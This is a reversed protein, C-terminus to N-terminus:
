APVVARPQGTPRLEVALLSMRESRILSVVEKHGSKKEGDVVLDDIGGGFRDVDLVFAGSVDGGVCSCIGSWIKSNVVGSDFLAGGAGFFNGTSIEL